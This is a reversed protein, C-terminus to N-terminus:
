KNFNIKKLKRLYKVDSKNSLGTTRSCNDVSLQEKLGNAYLLYAKGVEFEYGCLSSQNTTKISIEGSNEGKWTKSVKIKVILEFENELSKSVSLVEGEFIATSNTFAGKVQKKVSETSLVCSCALSNQASAILFISLAVLIFITKKMNEGETSITLRM